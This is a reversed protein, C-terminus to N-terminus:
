FYGNHFEWGIVNEYYEELGMGDWSLNKILSLHLFRGTSIPHALGLPCNKLDNCWHCIYGSAQLSM